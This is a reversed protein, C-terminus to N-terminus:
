NKYRFETKYNNPGHKNVLTYSKDAMEINFIVYSGNDKDLIKERVKFEFYNNFFPLAM